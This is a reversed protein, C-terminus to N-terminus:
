RELTQIKFTRPPKIFVQLEKKTNGHLNTDIFLDHMQHGRNKWVRLIIFSYYFNSSCFEDSFLTM